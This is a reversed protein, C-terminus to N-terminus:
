LSKIIDSKTHDHDSDSESDEDDENLTFDDDDDEEDNFADSEEEEDNTAYFPDREGSDGKNFDRGSHQQQDSSKTTGFLANDYGENESRTENERSYPDSQGHHEREDLSM